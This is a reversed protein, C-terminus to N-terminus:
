LTRYKAQINATVPNLQGESDLVPTKMIEALAKVFLAVKQFKSADRNKDFSPLSELEQLGLIASKDLCEFVGQLETIRRKVQQMFDKAAEIKVIATNVEANYEWAKTLAKEGEGALVFGGILVAPGVTIGGLVLSGLAMGGGGAALSGGGLWALTANWAAAGSLGGILTGTSAVGVSTALSMAGGYGAAAAGIAKTGGNFFQEAQLAAAKYEKIQQVSIGELGELFEKESQKSKGINREIFDLFRGVTTMMVDLQLQGYEEALENTAEWDAKLESVAYSHRNQAREGIEKAENMNGVGEAGKVAGFAATGLAIAGLILPIM